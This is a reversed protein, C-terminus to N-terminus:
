GACPGGCPLGYGHPYGGPFRTWRRTQDPGPGPSQRRLWDPSPGNKVGRILRGAFIPCADRSEAAFNLAIAKPSPFKGAVPTVKHSVEANNHGKDAMFSRIVSEARRIKADDRFGAGAHDGHVGPLDHLVRRDIGGKDPRQM